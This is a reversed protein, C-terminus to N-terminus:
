GMPRGGSMGGFEVRIKSMSSNPTFYGYNWCKGDAIIAIRNCKAPRSRLRTLDPIIARREEKGRSLGFFEMSLLLACSTPIFLLFYLRNIQTVLTM